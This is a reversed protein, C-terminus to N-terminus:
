GVECCFAFEIHSIDHEDPPPDPESCPFFTAATATANPVAPECLDSACKSVASGELFTCGPALIVTWTGDPNQTVTFHGPACGGSVVDAPCINCSGPGSPNESCMPDQTPDWKVCYCETRPSTTQAAASRMNLTQVVPIAWVVGGAAALRKLADRRSLGGAHTTEDSDTM